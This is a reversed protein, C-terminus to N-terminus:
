AHKILSAILRNFKTVFLPNKIKDVYAQQLEKLKRSDIKTMDIRDNMLRKGQAV